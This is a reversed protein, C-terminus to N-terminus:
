LGERVDDDEKLMNETFTCWQISAVVCIGQAPHDEMVWKHRKFEEEEKFNVHAHGIFKKVAFLMNEQLQLLWKEVPNTGGTKVKKIKIKEEEASIIWTIEDYEFTIRNINEFLKRLHPQVCQPDKSAEALISLLEDNSLFYFRPFETRKKELLIELSKQIQDLVSNNNRFIDLYLQDKFTGLTRFVSSNNHVQKM